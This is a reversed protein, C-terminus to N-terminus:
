PNPFIHSFWIRGIHIHIEYIYLGGLGCLPRQICERSTTRLRSPDDARRNRDMLTRVIRRGHVQLDERPISAKRELM